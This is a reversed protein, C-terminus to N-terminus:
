EWSLSLSSSARLISGFSTVGFTNLDMAKFRQRFYLSASSLPATFLIVVIAFLFTSLSITPSWSSCVVLTSARFCQRGTKLKSFASPEWLAMPTFLSSKSHIRVLVTQTTNADVDVPFSFTRSNIPRSDFPVMDGTHFENRLSDGQFVYVDIEDLVAYNIEFVKNITNGSRNEVNYRFWYDDNSYGFSLRGKPPSAFDQRKLVENPNLKIESTSFYSVYPSLDLKDGSGALDVAKAVAHSSLMFTIFFLAISYVKGM